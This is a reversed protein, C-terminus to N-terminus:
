FTYKSVKLFGAPGSGVVSWSPGVVTVIPICFGHDSEHDGRGCGRGRGQVGPLGSGLPRPPSHPAPVLCPCCLRPAASLDPAHRRGPPPRPQATACATGPACGWPQGAGDATRLRTCLGVACSGPRTACGGACRPGGENRLRPQADVGFVPAAATTPGVMLGVVASSHAHQRITVPPRPSHGGAQDPTGPSSVAHIERV